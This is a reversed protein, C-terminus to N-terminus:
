QADKEGHGGRALGGRRRGCVRRDEGIGTRGGVIGAHSQLASQVVCTFRCEAQLLERSQRLRGAERGAVGGTWRRRREGSGIPLRKRARRGSLVAGGIRVQGEGAVMQEYAVVVADIEVVDIVRHLDFESRGHQARPALAIYRHIAVQEEHRGLRHIAADIATRLAYRQRGTVRRRWRRGSRGGTGVSLGCAHATRRRRGARVPEAADADEIDAVERIWLLDGRHLTAPAGVRM